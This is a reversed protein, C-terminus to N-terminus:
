NDDACGEGGYGYGYKWWFMKRQLWSAVVGLFRRQLRTLCNAKNYKDAYLLDRIACFTEGLAAECLWRRDCPDGQKELQSHFRILLGHAADLRYQERLGESYDAMEGTEGYVKDLMQLRLEAELDGLRSCITKVEDGVEGRTLAAAKKM